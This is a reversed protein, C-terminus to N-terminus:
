TYTYTFHGAPHHHIKGTLDAPEPNAGYHIPYLELM